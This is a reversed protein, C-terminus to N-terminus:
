IVAMMRFFSFTARVCQPRLSHMRLSCTGVEPPDLADPRQHQWANLLCEVSNTVSGDPVAANAMLGSSAGENDAALMSRSGQKHKAQLLLSSTSLASKALDDLEALRQSKFCFLHCEDFLYM